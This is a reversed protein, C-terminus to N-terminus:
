KIIVGEKKLKKICKKCEVDHLHESILEMYKISSGCLTKRSGKKRAHWTHFGFVEYDTNAPM